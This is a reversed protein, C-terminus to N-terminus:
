SKITITLVRPVNLLDSLLRAVIYGGRMVAVIVTPRFGSSVILEALRISLEEIRNWNVVEFERKM